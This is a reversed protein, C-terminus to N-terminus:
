EKAVLEREKSRGQGHGRGVGLSGFGGSELSGCGLGFRGGLLSGALDIGGFTGMSLGAALEKVGLFCGFYLLFLAEGRHDVVSVVEKAAIAIGQGNDINKSILGSEKAEGFVNNDGEAACERTAVVLNLEIIDNCLPDVSMQKVKQWHISAVLDLSSTAGTTTERLEVRWTESGGRREVGTKGM